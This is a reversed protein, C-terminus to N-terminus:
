LEACFRCVLQSLGWVVAASCCVLACARVEVASSTDDKNLLVSRVFTEDELGLEAVTQTVIRESGRFDPEAELQEDNLSDQLLALRAPLPM